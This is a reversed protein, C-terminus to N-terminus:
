SGCGTEVREFPHFVPRKSGDGTALTKVAAAGFNASTARDINERITKHIYNSLSRHGMTATNFPYKKGVDLDFERCKDL